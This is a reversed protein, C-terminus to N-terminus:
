SPYRKTRAVSRTLRDLFQPDIRCGLGRAKQADDLARGYEQRDFYMMARQVYAEGYNKKITLARSFDALARVTDGKKGYAIGRKTYLPAAPDVDLLHSYDALARDYERRKVLLDGRTEGAQRYRPNAELAKGYAELAGDSDGSMERMCGINYHAKENKPNLALAHRYYELAEDTRKRRRAANGLGVYINDSSPNLALAKRFNAEARAFDDKFMYINGLNNYADFYRPNLQVAMSCDALARDYDQRCIYLFGRNNYAIPVDPYHRIINNYLSIDDKWVLCQRVSLGALVVAVGIGALLAATRARVAVRSYLGSVAVSAAYFLGIFPVYTYRDAALGLGVPVLNIVPLVTIAFFLFGYLIKRTFRLSYIIGACLFLLASPAYLLSPPPMAGERVPYPYLSALPYPWLAKGIYFLADHCATLTNKFLTFSSVLNGADGAHQGRMAVYAFIGSLAFFPLKGSLRRGLSPLGLMTDALILVLPLTVAMPKSMLALAFAAFALQYGARGYGRAARVYLVLSLLYFFAYLVDKRESIWAVSEVHMPHIGFLLAVAFALAGDEYLLLFLWFVLMTNIIHLVLNTGHYAAPNLRFLRYELAYSVLVLPHYLGAHLSTFIEKINAPAVSMIKRNEYVLLNDDLNVFGNNLVPSYVATTIAALLSLFLMTCKM